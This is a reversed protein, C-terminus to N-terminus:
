FKSIIEKELVDFAGTGETAVKMLSERILKSRYLENFRNFIKNRELLLLTKPTHQYVNQDTLDSYVEYNLVELEIQKVMAKEVIESFYLYDQEYSPGTGSVYGLIKTGNLRGLVEIIDTDSHIFLLPPTRGFDRFIKGETRKLFIVGKLRDGFLSFFDRYKSFGVETHIFIYEAERRKNFVRAINKANFRSIQLWNKRDLRELEVGFPAALIIKQERTIGKVKGNYLGNHSVFDKLEKETVDDRTLVNLYYLYLEMPTVHSGIIVIRDPLISIKSTLFAKDKLDEMKFKEEPPTIYIDSGRVRLYGGEKVVNFKFSQRFRLGSRILGDVFDLTMMLEEQTSETSIVNEVDLIIDKDISIRTVYASVIENKLDTPVSIYSKRNGINGVHSVGEINQGLDFNVPGLRLDLGSSLMNLIFQVSLTM